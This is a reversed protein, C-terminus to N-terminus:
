KKSVLVAVGSGENIWQHCTISIRGDSKELNYNAGVVFIGIDFFELDSSYNIDFTFGDTPQLAKFQILANNGNKREIVNLEIDLHNSFKDDMISFTNIDKQTVKARYSIDNGEDHKTPTLECAKFKKVEGDPRSIIISNCSSGEDEFGVVIDSYGSENPYLRYRYIGECVIGKDFYVKNLVQYNSRVNREKISLTKDIFFGYYDGINPYNNKESISPQILTKIAEKKSEQDINSLFNRKLIIDELFKKIIEMFSSTGAIFSFLTAIFLSLGLSQILAIIYDPLFNYRESKLLESILILLISIFFYLAFHKVLQKFLSNKTSQNSMFHSIEM